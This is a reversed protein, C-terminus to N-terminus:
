RKSKDWLQKTYGEKIADSKSYGLKKLIDYVEKRAKAIDKKEALYEVEIFWGLGKVRNLEIQFNKRIDFIECEKEKTLWKKFGFDGILRLFDGINSVKFEVEKKAWIGGRYGAPQKFNVIHYGDVKRIRLSKKPYNKLNELTYYDDIKRERGIFKGLIKAKKRATEPNKVSVKAEVEIM